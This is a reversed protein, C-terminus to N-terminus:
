RDRTCEESCVKEAFETAAKTARSIITGAHAPKCSRFLANLADLPMSSDGCSVLHTLRKLELVKNATQPFISRMPKKLQKVIDSYKNQGLQHLDQCVAVLIDLHVECRLVVTGTQFFEADDGGDFDNSGSYKSNFLHGQMWQLGGGFLQFNKIKEILPSLPNDGFLKRLITREHALKEEMYEATHKLISNTGELLGKLLLTHMPDGLGREAAYVSQGAQRLNMYEGWAPIVDILISILDQLWPGYM